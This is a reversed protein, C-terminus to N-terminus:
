DEDKTERTQSREGMEDRDSGKGRTHEVWWEVLLV